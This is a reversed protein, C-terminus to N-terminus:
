QVGVVAEMVTGPSLGHGHLVRWSDQARDAFHGKDVLELLQRVREMWDEFSIETKQNATDM